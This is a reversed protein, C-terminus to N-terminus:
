SAKPPSAVVRIGYMGIVAARYFFFSVFVVVVVVLGCTGSSFFDRLTLVKGVFLFSFFVGGAGASVSAIPGCDNLGELNSNGAISREQARTAAWSWWPSSIGSPLTMEGSGSSLM